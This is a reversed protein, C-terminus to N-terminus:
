AAKRAVIIQSKPVARDLVHKIRLGEPKALLLSWCRSWAALMDTEPEAADQGAAWFLSWWVTKYFGDFHRAEILLGADEVLRAFEQRAFVRVHNPPRWYSPPAFERQLEESVPDPVALLYLSGPAGVRVLEAVFAQPDPVHELVECCVVHTAIGPPLPLPSSDSVICRHRGSGCGALEKELAAIKQALVDTAIVDAGMRAAFRAAGGDGCGVDLYTDGAGLPFGTFLEGTTNNFWGSRCLDVLGCDFSQPRTGGPSEPRVRRRAVFRSLFKM